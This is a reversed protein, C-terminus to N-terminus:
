SDIGWSSKVQDVTPTGYPDLDPASTEAAAHHEADLRSMGFVTMWFDVREEFSM